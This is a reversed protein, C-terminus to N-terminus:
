ATARSFGSDNATISRNTTAPEPSRPSAACTMWLKTLLTSGFALGQYEPLTVGELTSQYTIEM